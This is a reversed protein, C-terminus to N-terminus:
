KWGRGDAVVAGIRVVRGLRDVRGVVGGIRRARIEPRRRLLQDVPDLGVDLGPARLGAAPGTGASATVVEAEPRSGSMEGASRAPAPRRRTALARPRGSRAPARGPRAEISRGGTRCEDALRPDINQPQIQRQISSFDGHCGTLTEYPGISSSSVVSAPDPRAEPPTRRCSARAPQLHEEAGRRADALGVRHQRARAAELGLADVDDDAEDLRVAAGLGARQELAELDQRAADDFIVAAAMASNSM